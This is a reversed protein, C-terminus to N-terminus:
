YSGNRSHKKPIDNAGANFTIGGQKNDATNKVADVDKNGVKHVFAIFVIRFDLFQVIM